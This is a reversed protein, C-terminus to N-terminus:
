ALKNLISTTSLKRTIGVLIITTGNVNAAEVEQKNLTDFTYDGAKAWVQGPALGSIYHVVDLDNMEAVGVGLSELVYKRDNYKNIPRDVGKLSRVSEDGNLWVTVRGDPGAIKKLANLFEVHGAHIVDFCGNTYVNM